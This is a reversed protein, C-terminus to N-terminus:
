DGYDLLPERSPIGIPMTEQVIGLSAGMMLGVLSTDLHLLQVAPVSTGALRLPHKM